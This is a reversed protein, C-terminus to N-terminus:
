DNLVRLTICGFEQVYTVWVLDGEPDVKKSKRIFPLGNGINTPISLPWLGPRLNLESVDTAFLGERIAVVHNEDIM